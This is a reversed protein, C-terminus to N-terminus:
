PWPGLPDPYRFSFGLRRKLRESSVVKYATPADGTFTPPELGMRRAHTTYLVRRTPHEDACVNFVENRAERALVREVAAVGDDRHVLNVPAEGNALGSRGALFRGPLRDYGILGAFRLITWDFPAARVAAEARLLVRGSLGPAEGADEEHVVGNTEPYVSTSSAFLLWGVGARAAEDLIRGVRAQYGAALEPDRRGPPINLFLADAEFFAADLEGEGEPGLRVVYPDIGAEAIASLKEEATTSGRVAYGLEVLRRGLSLGLWGCGLISITRM